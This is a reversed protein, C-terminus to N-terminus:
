DGIQYEHAYLIKFSINEAHTDHNREKGICYIERGDKHQYIVLKEAGQHDEAYAKLDKLLWSIDCSPLERFVTPTILLKGEFFYAGNGKQTQRTWPSIYNKM